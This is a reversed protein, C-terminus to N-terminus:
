IHTERQEMSPRFTLNGTMMTMHLYTFGPPKFTSCFLSAMSIKRYDHYSTMGKICQPIDGFEHFHDVLKGTRHNNKCVKCCSAVEDGNSRTKKVVKVSSNVPLLTEAILVDSVSVNLWNVVSPYLVKACMCCVAAPKLNDMGKLIKRAQKLREANILCCQVPKGAAMTTKVEAHETTRGAVYPNLNIGCLSLWTM